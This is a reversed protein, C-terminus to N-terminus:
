DTSGGDVSVKDKILEAHFAEITQDGEVEFWQSSDSENAKDFAESSDAADVDIYYNIVKDGYVRYKSM